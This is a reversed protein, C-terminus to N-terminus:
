PRWHLGVYYRNGNYNSLPGAQGLAIRETYKDDLWEFTAGLNQLFFYEALVRARDVTFPISGNNNMWLYGADISLREWQFHVGGEWTHGLEKQETPAIAFDQPVRILIQRNALFEGGSARLTLMNKLLSVEVDAAFERVKTTYGIEVIDDDAHTEQFVAGVKLVDKFKWLGRFKYRDRNIFDTRFIPQNAEDHRYDATLTVGYKAFSAGGGYTNVTRQFAGGQGGPIVIESADPTVLVDQKTQTWGANVAFPGLMRATVAADYVVDQREVATRADIERLLDGAPVGAYTVTNLFLSAILAQGTLTRSNEAWGGAIAVNDAIQIEARASGRWFDTRARSNVTEGLGSFFRAIEFSVFNGADAEVYGTENGGDAKVYTGTLKLRGFLNGTVWANTVPTNIKNKETSVITDATVQQGLIPFTVNGGGGSPALSRVEQWRFMRWGQTVAGQVPGYNFGLGVRYLEDTSRVQDNLLFENGGLHYTTSGPGNYTNRTYGLLPSVIKGPLFELTADYINRTRNYTQQGPIIGQALFPNAFAPLASYLDTERWTFTLKFLDMQGAQLRLQGAPGAGIDSGDVHLYDFFGGLPGASTYDLSRLLLGSRDNIQTRYMRENGSVDVWRYGVELDLPLAQGCLATAGAALAALALALPPFPRARTM